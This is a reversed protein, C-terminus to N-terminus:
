EPDAEPEAEPEVEPPAPYMLSYLAETQDDATFAGTEPNYIKMIDSPEFADLCLNTEGEFVVTETTYSSGTVYSVARNDVDLHIIDPM